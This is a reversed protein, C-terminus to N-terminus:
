EAKDELKRIREEMSALKAELDRIYAQVGYGDAATIFGGTMSCTYGSNGQYRWSLCPQLQHTRIYAEPTASEAAAVSVGTLLASVLVLAKM